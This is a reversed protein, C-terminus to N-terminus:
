VAGAFAKTQTGLDSNASSDRFVFDLETDSLHTFARGQVSRAYDDFCCRRSSFGEHQLLHQLGLSCLLVISVLKCLMAAWTSGKLVWRPAKVTMLCRYIHFLDLTKFIGGVKAIIDIFEYLSQLPSLTMADTCIDCFM